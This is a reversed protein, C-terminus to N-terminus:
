LAMSIMVRIVQDVGFSTLVGIPLCRGLYSVRVFSQCSNGVTGSVNGM